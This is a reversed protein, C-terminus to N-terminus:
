ISTRALLPIILVEKFTSTQVTSSILTPELSIYEYMVNQSDKDTTIKTVTILKVQTWELASM